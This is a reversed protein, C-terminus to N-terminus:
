RRSRTSSRRCKYGCYTSFLANSNTIPVTGHASAPAATAAFTALLAVFPVAASVRKRM